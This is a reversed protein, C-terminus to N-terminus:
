AATGRWSSLSTSHWKALRGPRGDAWCIRLFLSGPGNMDVTRSRVRVRCGERNNLWRRREQHPSILCRDNPRQGLGRFLDMRPWQRYICQLAQPGDPWYSVNGRRGRHRRRFGHLVARQQVRALVAVSRRDHALSFAWTPAIYLLLFQVVCMFLRRRGERPSGVSPM